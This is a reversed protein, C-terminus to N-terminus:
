CLHLTQVSKEDTHGPTITLNISQNFVLYALNIVILQAGNQLVTASLHGVRPRVNDQYPFGRHSMFLCM